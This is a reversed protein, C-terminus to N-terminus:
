AKKLQQGRKGMQLHVFVPKTGLKAHHCTRGSLAWRLKAGDLSFDSYHMLTVPGTGVSFYHDGEMLQKVVSESLYCTTGYIKSLVIAQAHVPSSAVNREEDSLRKTADTLVFVPKGNCLMSTPDLEFEGEKDLVLRANPRMTAVFARAAGVAYFVKREGVKWGRKTLKKNDGFLLKRKAPEM